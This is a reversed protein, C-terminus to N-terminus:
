CPSRRCASSGDLVDGKPKFGWRKDGFDTNLAIFEGSAVFFVAKAGYALRGASKDDRKYPGFKLEGTLPDFGRILTAGRNDTSVAVLRGDQVLLLNCRPVQPNKKPWSALPQADGLGVARLSDDDMLYVVGQSSTVNPDRGKRGTLEVFWPRGAATEAAKGTHIDIAFVNPGAVGILKDGAPVLPGDLPGLTNLYTWAPLVAMPALLDFDQNM